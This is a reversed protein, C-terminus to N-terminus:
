EVVVSGDPTEVVVRTVVYTGAHDGLEVNLRGPRLDMTVPFREDGRRTIRVRESPELDAENTGLLGEAEARARELEFSAFPDEPEDVGHSGPPPSAASGGAPPASASAPPSEAPADRVNGRSADDTCAAATLLAAAASLSLGIRIM